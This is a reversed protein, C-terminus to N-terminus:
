RLVYHCLMQVHMTALTWPYDGLRMLWGLRGREIMVALRYRHVHRDRYLLKVRARLLSQDDQADEMMGYMITTEQEVTTVG